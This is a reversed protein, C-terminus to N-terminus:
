MAKGQYDVVQVSNPLSNPNETGNAVRNVRDETPISHLFHKGDLPIAFGHHSGSITTNFVLPSQDNGFLSPDM